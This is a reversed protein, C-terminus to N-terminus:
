QNAAQLAGLNALMGPSIQDCNVGRYPANGTGNCDGGSNTDNFAGWMNTGTMTNVPRLSKVHGDAFLYNATSLHGVFNRDIVEVRKGPNDSYDPWGIAAQYGNTAQNKSESVMIKTAPAQLSSLSQAGAAWGLPIGLVRVNGSYSETIAANGNSAPDRVVTNQTNSPCSFIQTSKLYPQVAQRWTVTGGTAPFVAALPYLEDYDQSYQLVGLGIQKLNSQCSSRRANERARGFVPFLISALIAIIAIVVLLEILTFGRKTASKLQSIQM